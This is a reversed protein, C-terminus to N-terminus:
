KSEWDGWDGPPDFGSVGLLFHCMEVHFVCIKRVLSDSLVSGRFCNTGETDDESSSCPEAGSAM